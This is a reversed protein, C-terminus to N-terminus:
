SDILFFYEAEDSTDNRYNAKPKLYFKTGKILLIELRYEVM